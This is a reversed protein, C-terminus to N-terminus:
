SSSIFAIHKLLQIFMIIIFFIIILPIFAWVVLLPVAVVATIPTSLTFLTM